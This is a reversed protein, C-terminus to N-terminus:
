SGPALVVGLRWAKRPAPLVPTEGNTWRLFVEDLWGRRENLLRYAAGLSVRTGDLTAIGGADERYVDIEAHVWIPRIFAPAWTRDASIHWAVGAALSTYSEDSASLSDRVDSSISRGLGGMAYLAPIFPWVGNQHDHTYVLELNGSARVETRPQNMEMLGQVGLSLDGYDFEMASGPADVNAPDFAIVRPKALSISLGGAAAMTIPDPNLDEDLALVGRAEVRWYSSRPFANAVRHRRSGAALDLRVGATYDGDQELVAPAIAIRPWERDQANAAGTIVLAAVAVTTLRIM